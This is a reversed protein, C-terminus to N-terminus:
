VSMDCATHNKNYNRKGIDTEGYFVRVFGLLSLKYNNNNCTEEATKETFRKLDKNHVKAKGNAKEGPM